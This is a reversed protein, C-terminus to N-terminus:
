REQGVSSAGPQSVGGLIPSRITVLSGERLVEVEISSAARLGEFAWLAQEPREIRIGNVRVIVDGLRVDAGSARWSSLDQAADLRFGVFRDNSIVPSVRITALFAALGRSVLGEVEARSLPGPTRGHRGSDGTAESVAGDRPQGAGSSLSSRTTATGHNGACAVLSAILILLGSLVSRRM